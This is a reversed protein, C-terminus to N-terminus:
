VSGVIKLTPTKQQLEVDGKPLRLIQRARAMMKGRSRFWWADRDQGRIKPLREGEDLSTMAPHPPLGDVTFVDKDCVPIRAAFEVAPGDPVVPERLRAVIEAIRWPPERALYGDLRSEVRNDITVGVIPQSRTVDLREDRAVM